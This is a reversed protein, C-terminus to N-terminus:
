GLSSHLLFGLEYIKQPFHYTLFCNRGPMQLFDNNQQIFHTLIIQNVSQSFKVTSISFDDLHKHFAPHFELHVFIKILSPSIFFFIDFLIVLNWALIRVVLVTFFLRCYFFMFSGFGMIALEWIRLLALKLLLINLLRLKQMRLFLLLQNLSKVFVFFIKDIM